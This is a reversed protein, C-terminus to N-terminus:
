NSLGLNSKLYDIFKEYVTEANLNKLVFEYGNSAILDLQDNHIQYYSVKRMLDELSGDYAIYHINPLMGLDSYMPNNLGFFASGCAMGEVFGIAPLDSLEEPVTFMRYSNYIDVINQKYYRKQPHIGFKKEFFKILYQLRNLASITERSANLDSIMCDMQKTFKHANEYLIRRLPQLENTKYFNIFDDQQMKFTITGTVVLKNIRDRYKKYKIFRKAPTYSLQYFQHPIDGFFHKFFTSNKLLNNEALLLDPSLSKLNLSSIVPNYAYHTMHIIKYIDVGSLCDALQKGNKALFISEHTLNGYLMMFLVDKDKLGNKNFIFGVRRLSIKNLACWIILQLTDIISRVFGKLGKRQFLDNTFYVDLNSKLISDFFQEYKNPLLQRKIFNVIPNKFWVNVHPRYFVIKINNQM